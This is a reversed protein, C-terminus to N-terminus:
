LKIECDPEIKKAVRVMEQEIAAIREDATELTIRGAMFNVAASDVGEIKRIAREVKAACNACDISFKYVKKM